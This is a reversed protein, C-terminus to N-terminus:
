GVAARLAALTRPGLVGDVTLKKAKQFSELAKKTAPGFHGDVKGSRYGLSALSRQLEKVQVGADGSKLAQTPLVLRKPTKATKPTTGTKATTTPTPPLTTVAAPSAKSSSFVGGVWLGAVVLLIVVAVALWLRPNNLKINVPRPAADARGGGGRALWDDATQAAEFTEAAAPDLAAQRRPRRPALDSGAFWDDLDLDRETPSGRSAM